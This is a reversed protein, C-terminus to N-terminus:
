KAPRSLRIRGGDVIWEGTRALVHVPQRHLLSLYVHIETPTDTTLHTVVIGVTEAGPPPPPIAELSKTFTFVETVRGDPAVAMRTHGGAMVEGPTTTAALLYVYHGEEGLMARPLVVLNYPRRARPFPTTVAARHATVLPVVHPPLTGGESVTSSAADNGLVVRYRVADGTAEFFYTVPRSSEEAVVWGGVRKDPAGLKALMLDSAVAAAADYRFVERGLREARANAADPTAPPTATAPKASATPPAKAPSESM